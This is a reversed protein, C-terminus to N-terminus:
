NELCSYDHREKFELTLIAAVHEFFEDGAAIFM